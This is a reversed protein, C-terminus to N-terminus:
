GQDSILHLHIHFVEQGGGKGVNFSLKYGDIGREKAIDRAKGVMHGVLKEDEPKLDAITAIHKKPIILLHTKAIPNIDHFIMCLDDEYEINAPIQKDVIKCFICDETM